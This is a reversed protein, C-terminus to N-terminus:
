LEKSADTIRTVMDKVTLTKWDDYKMTKFWEGDFCHYKEDLTFFVMNIGFSDLESDMFLSDITVLNGHEERIAKNIEVLIEEM